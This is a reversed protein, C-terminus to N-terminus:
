GIEPLAPSCLLQTSDAGPCIGLSIHLPLPQVKSVCSRKGSKGRLYTMRLHPPLPWLMVGLSAVRTLFSFGSFSVAPFSREDRGPKLESLKVAAKSTSLLGLPLALAVPVNCIM